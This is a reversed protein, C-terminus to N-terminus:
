SNLSHVVRMSFRDRITPECACRSQGDPLRDKWDSKNRQKEEKPYASIWQGRDSSPSIVCLAKRITEQIHEIGLELSCQVNSSCLSTSKLSCVKTSVENSGQCIRSPNDPLKPLCCECSVHLCSVLLKGSVAPCEDCAETDISDAGETLSNKGKIQLAM